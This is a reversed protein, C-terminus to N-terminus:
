ERTRSFWGGARRVDFPRNEKGRWWVPRHGAGLGRAALVKGVSSCVAPVGAAPDRVGSPPPGVALRRSRVGCTSTRSRAGSGAKRARLEAASGGTRVRRARPNSGWRAGWRRMDAPGRGREGGVPTPRTFARAPGPRPAHANDSEREREGRLRLGSACRNGFGSTVPEFGTRPVVHQQAPSHIDLGREAPTRERDDRRRRARGRWSRWRGRVPGGPEARISRRGAFGSISREFRDAPV